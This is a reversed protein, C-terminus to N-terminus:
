KRKNIQRMDTPNSGHLYFFTGGGVVVQLIYHIAHLDFGAENFASSNIFAKWDM